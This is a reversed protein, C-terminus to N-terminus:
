GEPTSFIGGRSHRSSGPSSLFSSLPSSTHPSTLRPHAAAPFFVMVGRFMHPFVDTKIKEM